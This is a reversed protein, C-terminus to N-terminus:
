GGGRVTEPDLAEDPQSDEHRITNKKIRATYNRWGAFSKRLGAKLPVSKSQKVFRQLVKIGLDMADNNTVASPDDVMPTGMVGGNVGRTNPTNPATSALSGHTGTAGMVRRWTEPRTTPPTPMASSPVASMARSGGKTGKMSGPLSLISKSPSPAPTEFRVTYFRLNYKQAPHRRSEVFWAGLANPFMTPVPGMTREIVEFQESVGFNFAYFGLKKLGKARAQLFRGSRPHFFGVNRGIRRLSVVVDEAHSHSPGALFSQATRDSLELNLTGDESEVIVYARDTAVEALAIFTGPPPLGLEDDAIASEGELRRAADALLSSSSGGAPPLRPTGRSSINNSM